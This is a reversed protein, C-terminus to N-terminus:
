KSYPRGPKRPMHIKGVSHECAGTGELEVSRYPCYKCSFINPKPVFIKTDTLALGRKHWQPGLAYAQKRTYELPAMDDKDVYWFETRIRQLEPFREFAAVSYLQGQETHKIENGFRKGTKYDIVVAYHQTPRFFADLKMRLWGTKWETKNWDQDFAWEEEVTVNGKCYERRLAEFEEKFSMLEPILETTAGQVYDEAGSHVTVGRESYINSPTECKKVSRLYVSYPCKEFNTLSSFSWSAVPGPM